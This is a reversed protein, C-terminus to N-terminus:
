AKFFLLDGQHTEARLKLVPTSRDHFAIFDEGRERHQFLLATDWLVKHHILDDLRKGGGVLLIMGADFVDIHVHVLRLLIQLHVDLLLDHLLNLLGARLDRQLIRPGDGGLVADAVDDIEGHVRHLEAADGGSVALLDDNLAQALGFGAHDVVFVVGLGMFDEGAHHLANVGAAAVGGNADAGAGLGGVRHQGHALLDLALRQHLTLADLDIQHIHAARGPARLHHDGAGVGAKDLPKKLQLNGLNGVAGHLDAGDGPLRAAAGLHRYPAVVGVYVGDAGADAGM